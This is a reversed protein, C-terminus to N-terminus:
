DETPGSALEDMRAKIVNLQEQLWNAQDALDAM